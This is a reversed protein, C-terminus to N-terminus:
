GIKWICYKTWDTSFVEVIGTNTNVRWYATNNEFRNIGDGGTINNWVNVVINNYNIGTFTYGTSTWVSHSDVIGQQDPVKGLQNSHMGDVMDANLNTNVTGNSLPVNGDANGVTKGSVTAADITPSANSIKSQTIAASPSILADTIANSAIKATTVNGDTIETTIIPRIKGGSTLQVENGNKDKYFLEPISAVDKVYVFGKDASAIPPTTLKRLTIKRHEGADADSVESGTLPFYHDADLREQISAKITRIEDDGMKPDDDPTPKLIDYIKNWVAM